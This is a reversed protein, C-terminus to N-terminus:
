TPSRVVEHRREERCFFHRKIRITEVCSNKWYPHSTIMDFHNAGHTLDKKKGQHLVYNALLLAKKWAKNKLSPVERPTSLSTIFRKQYVKRCVKSPKWNVNNMIVQAVAIQGDTPESRAEYYIAMSLCFAAATIM